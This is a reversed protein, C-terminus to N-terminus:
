SWSRCRCTRACRACCMLCFSRPRVTADGSTVAPCDKAPIEVWPGASRAAEAAATHTSPHQLICSICDVAQMYLAAPSGPVVGVFGAGSQSIHLATKGAGERMLGFIRCFMSSKTAPSVAASKAVRMSGLSTCCASIFIPPHTGPLAHMFSHSSTRTHSAERAPQELCGLAVSSALTAPAATSIIAGDQTPQQPGRRAAPHVVTPGVHWLAFGEPRANACLCQFFAPDSPM